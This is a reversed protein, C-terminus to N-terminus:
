FAGEYKMKLKDDVAHFIIKLQGEAGVKSPLNAGIVQAPLIAWFPDYEPGKPAALTLMSGELAAKEGVKITWVADSYQAHIEALTEARMLDGDGEEPLFYFGAPAAKFMAIPGHLFEEFEFGMAMRLTTEQVKLASEQCVFQGQDKAVFLFGQKEMLIKEAEAYWKETVAVNEDMAKAMATLKDMEAKAADETIAGSAKAAEIAMVYLSLITCTYGMTKPGAEEHECALLVHKDIVKNMQCDKDGVLAIGPYKATREIAAVTNTSNGSQSVYVLLPNGRLESPLATPSIATVDVGLLKEMYAAAAKAANASSGSGVLVLRDPKSETWLDAFPKVLETKELTDMMSKGQLHIYYTMDHEAM